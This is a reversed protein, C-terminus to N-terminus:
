HVRWTKRGRLPAREAPLLGREIWDCVAHVDVGLARGAKNATIYDPHTSPHPLGFRRIKVRVATATRGLRAAIEADGMVGANERLFALEAETWQSAKAGPKRERGPGAAIVRSTG